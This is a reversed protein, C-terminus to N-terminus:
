MNKMNGTMYKSAVINEKEPKIKLVERLNVINNTHIYAMPYLSKYLSSHCAFVREKLCECTIYM